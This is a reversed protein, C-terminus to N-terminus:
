KGGFFVALLVVLGVGVWMVPKPLSYIARRILSNEAERAIQTVSPAIAKLEDTIDEQNM